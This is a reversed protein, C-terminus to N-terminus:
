ALWPSRPSLSVHTVCQLEGPDITNCLQKLFIPWSDLYLIAWSAQRTLAGAPPHQLLGGAVTEQALSRGIALRGDRLPLLPPSPTRDSARGLAIVFLGRVQASAGGIAGEPTSSPLRVRLRQIWLGTSQGTSSCGGREVCLIAYGRCVPLDARKLPQPKLALETGIRAPPTARGLLGGRWRAATPVVEQTRGPCGGCSALPPHSGAAERATPLSVDM